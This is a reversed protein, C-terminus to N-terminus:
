RELEGVTEIKVGAAEICELIDIIQKLETFESTRLTRELLRKAATRLSPHYTEPTFYVENDKNKNVRRMEIVWQHDDSRLRCDKLEIAVSM